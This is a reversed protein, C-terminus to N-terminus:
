KIHGTISLASPALTTGITLANEGKATPIIIGADTSHLEDAYDGVKALPENVIGTTPEALVYWVTVPTGAAYQAALYAKFDAVTSFSSDRIYLLKSQNSENGYFRCSLDTVDSWGNVNIGALYHSCINTVVGARKQYDTVPINFLGIDTHSSTINEEGTLVLKKIRRVTQTQGLYVPVTQSACTIPIKYGYPEYPLATSGLNLMINSYSNAATVYFRVYRTTPTTTFTWQKGTIDNGYILVGSYESISSDTVIQQHEDYAILWFYSGSGDLQRTLTYTTNPELEIWGSRRRSSNSVEEGTSVSLGGTQIEGNYLNATRVGVLEPMIINQPSPTGTQQGNGWLTLASLPLGYGKFSISDTGTLTKNAGWLIRDQNDRVEWGEQYGYPEYPLATSGSNLMYEKTSGYTRCSLRMYKAGDPVSASMPNTGNGGPRTIFTKDADYFGIARWAGNIGGVFNGGEGSFVATTMNDAIEIFDSTKEINTGSQPAIAGNQGSVYGNVWETLPPALNGTKMPIRVIDKETGNVIGKLM